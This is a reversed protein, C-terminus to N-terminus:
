KLERPDVPKAQLQAGSVTTEFDSPNLRVFLGNFSTELTDSGCFIRVQGREMAPAPHFNMRGRGLLVLGTVGQDISAVFVTGEPLTLDIDESSITLDHAAFSKTADLTLRYISEIASLHDEDALTWERDSGPAGTQAVDFRWTAVRGHSGFDVFVDVLVRYTTVARGLIQQRDREQLSVHLAGPMLETSAFARARERNADPGLLGFYAPPDGAQVVSELRTLLARVGDDQARATRGAILLCALAIAVRLKM